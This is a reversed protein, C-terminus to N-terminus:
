HCSFICSFDVFFRHFNLLFDVLISSFDILFRYFISSFQVGPGDQPPRPAMKAGLALIVEFLQNTSGEHVGKPSGWISGFPNFISFFDIWFQKFKQISKQDSKQDIKSRNPTGFHISFRDFISSFDILFTILHINSKLFSRSHIKSWNKTSKAGLCSMVLAVFCQLFWHNKLM